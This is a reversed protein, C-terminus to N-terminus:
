PLFLRGVGRLTEIRQLYDLLTEAVQEAYTRSSNLKKVDAITFVPLCDATNQARITAELSDPGALNRNGTVLVVCESQCRAWVEADPASSSLGLDELHLVDLGLDEWFERWPDSQMLSVLYEVQGRVDNDAVIGKVM